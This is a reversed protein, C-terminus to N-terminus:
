LRIILLKFRTDERQAARSDAPLAGADGAPRLLRNQSNAVRIAGIRTPSFLDAM